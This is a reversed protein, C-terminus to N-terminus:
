YRIMWSMWHNSILNFPRVTARSFLILFSLFSKGKSKSSAMMLVFYVKTFLKNMTCKSYSFHAITAEICNKKEYFRHHQKHTHIFHVRTKWNSMCIWVHVCLHYLCLITNTCHLSNWSVFVIVEDVIKATTKAKRKASGAVRICVCVCVFTHIHECLNFLICNKNACHSHCLVHTRTLTSTYICSVSCM